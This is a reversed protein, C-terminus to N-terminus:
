SPEGRLHSSRLLISCPSYPNFNSICYCMDKATRLVYEPTSSTARCISSTVSLLLTINPAWFQGSLYWSSYIHPCRRCLALYFSLSLSCYYNAAEALDTPADLVHTPSDQPKTQAIDGSVMIKYLVETTPWKSFSTCPLLLPLELWGLLSIFFRSVLLLM